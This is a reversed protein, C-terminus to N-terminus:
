ADPAKIAGAELWSWLLAAFTAGAAQAAIFPPVGAPAIGAFTDSFVRAITVAPNAFSTSATFWYAAGIILAVAAPTARPNAGATGLIALLLVFTAVVESLWLAPGFREKAAVQLLPLAFMANALVAGLIGGAVQAAAYGPLRALPFQGRAALVASVVPNFHAGSIPGFVSILVFLAACTAGTNALLAIADNGAALYQGMIGSGVVAAVLLLTGLFEAAASRM